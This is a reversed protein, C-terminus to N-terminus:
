KPRLLATRHAVAMESRSVLEIWKELVLQDKEEVKTFVIGMGITPRVNAVRGTAKFIAGQHTIKLWVTTGLPLPKATIVHCGFLSLDSTQEKIQAESQLEILEISAVFPYRRTRPLELQM